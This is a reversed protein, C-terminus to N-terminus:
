FGGLEQIDTFLHHFIRHDTHGAAMHKKKEHHITNLAPYGAPYGAM